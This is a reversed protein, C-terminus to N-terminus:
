LSIPLAYFKLYALGRNNYYSATVYKLLSPYKSEINIAETYDEIAGQYDKLEYRVLGRNNYNEAKLSNLRIVQSYDDIAGQYDKLAKRANGRNKYFNANKPNFRIAQTYDDVAGQYDELQYSANGRQYYAGMCYDSNLRIVQTYDDIAGQHDELARRANGRIYYADVYEPDLRIAQTCDELAEQYNKLQYSATGRQYYTNADQPSLHIAQNYDAIAGKYDKNNFKEEGHDCYFKADHSPQTVLKISEQTSKIESQQPKLLELWEEMTQPRDGPELEMGKVIAQNVRDTIGDNHQHPSPLEAYARYKSPIPVKGTLLYYLTAALAYVDTYAGRKARMEDQEIPAFGDTKYTTHTKTKGQSFERVLGFDVLVARANDESLMINAPKVDRHLFGQQHIYTLADSIQRTYNLAEQESLIKEYEVYQELNRGKIYEMVMCWLNEEKCVDRIKVIHPHHCKALRFAEQVFRAHHEEFDPKIQVTANLTKIAVLSNSLADRGLYTIGFGGGGLIEEIRYREQQILKGIQWSM